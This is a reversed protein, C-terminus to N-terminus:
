YRLTQSRDFIDRAKGRVGKLAWRWVTSTNVDLRQAVQSLSLREEDILSGFLIPSLFLYVWSDFALLCLLLLFLLSLVFFHVLQFKM